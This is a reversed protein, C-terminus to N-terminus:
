AGGAPAACGTPPYARASTNARFISIKRQLVRVQSPKQIFNAPVWININKEAPLPLPLSFAVTIVADKAAAIQHIPAITVLLDYIQGIAGSPLPPSPSGLRSSVVVDGSVSRPISTAPPPATTFM